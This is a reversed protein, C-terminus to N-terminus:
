ICSHFRACLRLSSSTIILQALMKWTLPSKTGVRQSEAVRRQRPFSRLKLCHFDRSAMVGEQGTLAVDIDGAKLADIQEKPSMNNLTLKLEPHTKRLEKVGM